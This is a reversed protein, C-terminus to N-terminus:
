KIQEWGWDLWPLLAQLDAYEITPGCWIRLSPPSYAHGKIDLAVGESELLACLKQVVKWRDQVSMRDIEPDKIKLCVTTDSAILRDKAMNEIWASKQAWDRVLKANRHTRKILEGVGGSRNVWDLTVLLDEVCLMSPTNLTEGEFLKEKFVGNDQLKFLFPIPWPPQFNKIHDIAKPSLVLIGHGGESGLCKQWSFSVADMKDWPLEMGFVATTADCIVLGEHDSAIWDGDPIKVGSTSGNWTVVIDAEKRITSLDPLEGFPAKLIRTNEIQLNEVLDKTWRDSFIDFSVCDAPRSGLLSWMATEMAATCSGTVVALKYGKPLELMEHLKQIATNIKKYGFSGRHSRGIAADKLLDLSWGTFKRCPGSSFHIDQPKLTPKMDDDLM